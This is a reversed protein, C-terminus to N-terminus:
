KVQFHERLERLLDQEMSKQLMITGNDENDVIANDNDKGNDICGENTEEEFPSKINATDEVDDNSYNSPSKENDYQTTMLDQSEDKDRLEKRIREEIDLM